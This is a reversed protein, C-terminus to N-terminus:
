LWNAPITGEARARGVYYKWLKAVHRDRNFSYAMTEAEAKTLPVPKGMALVRALAEANEEFHVADIMLAPVSEAVLVAGHARLLCASCGGLTAVLEAGQEPSSIHGPDPHTPIGDAWRIAHNKMAVLPTDELMTFLTATEPHCHLVARVDPRASLIATHIVLESPPRVGEPGEVVAGDLDVVLLDDPALEARSRDFPQILVREGNGIRTSIHGSYGLVGLANLMRTAAAVQGRLAPETLESPM